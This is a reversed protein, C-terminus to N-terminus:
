HRDDRLAPKSNFINARDGDKAKTQQATPLKQVANTSGNLRSLRGPQLPAM